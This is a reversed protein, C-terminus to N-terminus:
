IWGLLIERARPHANKLARRFNDAGHKKALKMCEIHGGCAANNLAINLAEKLTEERTCTDSYSWFVTKESKAAHIAVKMAAYQGKDAAMSIPSCIENGHPDVVRYLYRLVKVQGYQAADRRMHSIDVDELGAWRLIIKVSLLNGRRVAVALMEDTERVFYENGAWRRMLGFLRLWLGRNFIQLLCMRRMIHQYAGTQGLNFGISNLIKRAFILAHIHRMRGLLSTAYIACAHVDRVPNVWPLSVEAAGPVTTLRMLSVSDIMLKMIRTHGMVMATALGAGFAETRVSESEFLADGFQSMISKVGAVSGVGTLLLLSLGPDAKESFSVFEAGEKWLHIHIKYVRRDSRPFGRVFKNHAPTFYM